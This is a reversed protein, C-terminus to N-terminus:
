VPLTACHLHGVNGKEYCSRMLNKYQLNLNHRLRRLFMLREVFHYSTEEVFGMSGVPKINTIKKLM